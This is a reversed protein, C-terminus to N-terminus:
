AKPRRELRLESFVSDLLDLDEESLQVRAARANEIAQDATRAGVLAATIGPQHLVWAVALNALSIGHSEALPQVAALSDLIRQRNVPHYRPDTARGDSEPFTRDMTIRGTLLGRAMPSYVVVGVEQSRCWPLIEGDIKRDILSYKPQDSALPVDGLAAQAEIMQAISFNSVGIARVKGESVLDSLAGMSEPIPTTPDPWHCQLLDIHDTKLRRLSQEVEHRISEPRLNRWISYLRGDPDKSDFYHSGEQLDWRLGVKTLIQVQDRIGELARGLVSESHGFGYVPATDISTMGADVAARVTRISEAEDQGGWFWGGIAWAGLTVPTISLASRGLPRLDM